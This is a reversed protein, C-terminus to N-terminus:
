PGPSTRAIESEQREHEDDGERASRAQDAQKERDRRAEDTPERQQDREPRGVTTRRRDGYDSREVLRADVHDVERELAGSPPRACSYM